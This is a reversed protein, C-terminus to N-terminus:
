APDPLPVAARDSVRLTERYGAERALAIAEDWIRGVHEAAHADSSIVLPVGLTRARRLTTPLPYMVGAPDSFRDTNLEIACGSAAMARLAADIERDVGPGCRHGWLGIYDLHAIIDFRGLEAARRAARYYAAFLGDPDSWRADTRNDPDDFAMGDVVHIGGIVYQFPYATLVSALAAEHEAVYDAEVGLLVTIDSHRAAVDLVEDVYDPLRSHPITASDWPTAEVGALHDAIGIEPLGLAVAHAVCEEVSGEGDSYTTHVHYDGPLMLLM